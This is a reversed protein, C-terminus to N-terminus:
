KMKDLAGLLAKLSLGSPTRQNQEWKILTRLPVELREAMEKQTLNLRERAAKLKCVVEESM